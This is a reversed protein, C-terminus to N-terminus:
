AKDADALPQTVIHFIRGEFMEMLIKTKEVSHLRQPSVLVADLEALSPFVFSTHLPYFTGDEPSAATSVRLELLGPFSRWIDMMVDRVYTYFEAERGPKIRGEFFGQRIIM